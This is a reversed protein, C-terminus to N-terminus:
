HYPSWRSSCTSVCEKGVRSEDSRLDLAKSVMGSYSLTTWSDLVVVWRWDLLGPNVVWVDHGEEDYTRITFKDQLSDNWVFKTSTFFEFMLNIMRTDEKGGAFNDAFDLYFIRKRAEVPLQAITAAAVLDSSCVDSSWDSIRM